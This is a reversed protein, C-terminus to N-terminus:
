DPETGVPHVNGVVGVVEAVTFDDLDETVLDASCRIKDIERNHIRAETHALVNLIARSSDKVDEDLDSEEVIKMVEVASREVHTEETEVHFETGSIGKRETKQATLRYGSVPLRSLEKELWGPDLGADILSGIIMSGCVGSFCDFYAIKM